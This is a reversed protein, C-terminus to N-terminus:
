KSSNPSQAAPPMLSSIRGLSRGWAIATPDPQPVMPQEKEEGMHTNGLWLYLLFAGMWIMELGKVSDCPRARRFLSWFTQQERKSTIQPNGIM